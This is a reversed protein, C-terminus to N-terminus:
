GRISPGNHNSVYNLICSSDWCIENFGALDSRYESYNRSTSLSWTDATFHAYFWAFPRERGSLKCPMLRIIIATIRGCLKGPVVHLVTTARSCDKCGKESIFLRTGEGGRAWRDRACSVWEENKKEQRMFEHEENKGEEERERRGSLVSRKKEARGSQM